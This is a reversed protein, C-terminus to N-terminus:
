RLVCLWTADPVERIQVVPGSGHSSSPLQAPGSRPDQGAKVLQSVEAPSTFHLARRGGPLQREFALFPEEGASVRPSVSVRAAGAFQGQSAGFSAKVRGAGM